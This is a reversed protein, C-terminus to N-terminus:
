SHSLSIKLVRCSKIITKYSKTTSQKILNLNQKCWLQCQMPTRTGLLCYMIYFLIFSFSLGKSIPNERLQSLVKSYQTTIICNKIDKGKCQQIRLIYELLMFMIGTVTTVTWLPADIIYFQEALEIRRCCLETIDSSITFRCSSLVTGYQRILYQSSLNNTLFTTVQLLIVQFTYSQSILWAKLTPCIHSISYSNPQLITYSLCNVPNFGFTTIANGM